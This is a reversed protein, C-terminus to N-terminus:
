DRVHVPLNFLFAPTSDTIDVGLRSTLASVIVRRVRLLVMLDWLSRKRDRVNGEREDLGECQKMGDREDM